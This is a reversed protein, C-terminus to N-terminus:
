ENFTYAYITAYDVLFRVCVKQSVLKEVTDHNKWRVPYRVQDSRMELCEDITYGPIARLDQDMLEM